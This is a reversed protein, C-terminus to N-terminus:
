KYGIFSLLRGIAATSLGELLMKREENTKWSHCSRCLPQLMNYDYFISEDGRHMQIHDVDVAPEVVNYFSCRSCLPNSSLIHRRTRRWWATNYLYDYDPRIRGMDKKPVDSNLGHRKCYGREIAKEICGLRKCKM